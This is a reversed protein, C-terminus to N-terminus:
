LSGGQGSQKFYSCGAGAVLWRIHRYRDTYTLTHACMYKRLPKRQKKKTIAGTDVVTTAMHYVSLDTKPSNIFPIDWLYFSAYM